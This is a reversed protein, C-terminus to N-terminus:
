AKYSVSFPCRAVPIKTEATLYVKDCLYSQPSGTENTSKGAHVQVPRENQEENQEELPNQRLQQGCIGPSGSFCPCFQCGYLPLSLCKCLWVDGSAALTSM